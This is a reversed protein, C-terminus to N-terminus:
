KAVVRRDGLDPGSEYVVRTSAVRFGELGIEDGLIGLATALIVGIAEVGQQLEVAIRSFM